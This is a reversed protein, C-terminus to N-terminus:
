KIATLANSLSDLVKCDQMTEEIGKEKKFVGEAISVAIMEVSDRLTVTQEEFEFAYPKKM